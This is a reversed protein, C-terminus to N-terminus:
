LMKKRQFDTFTNKMGKELGCPYTFFSTLLSDDYSVKNSIVNLKNFGIFNLLKFFVAPLTYTKTNRKLIKNLLTILETYTTSKGINMVLQGPMDILKIIAATLDKVYLYNVVAGSAVVMTKNQNIHKMLKLVADFPHNEGYVNTPRLISLEINSQACSNILIQESKHKTREYENKPNCKSNEDVNIESNSYQLGIVGVSSLHIIKKVNNQAAAKILNKSGQINTSKLKATNRVEAAINIIIDINKLAKELSKYNTLNAVIVKTHPPFSINKKEPNRTIVSVQYKDTNIEKLLHKGIFGSAGTILVNM